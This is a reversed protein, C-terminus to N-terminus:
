QIWKFNTVAGDEILRATYLGHPLHSTDIWEFESTTMLQRVMKGSADFVSVRGTSNLQSIQIASRDASYMIKPQNNDVEEIGIIFEEVTVTVSNNSLEFCESSTVDEIFNGEEFLFVGSYDMGYVSYTGIELNSFDYSSSTTVLISDNENTIIYIYNLDSSSSNNFSLDTSNGNGIIITETTNGAPSTVTGAETNAFTLPFEINQGCVDSDFTLLYTGNFDEPATFSNPGSLPNFVDTYDLTYGEGGEPAEVTWSGSLEDFGCNAIQTFFPSGGSALLDGDNDTDFVIDNDSNYIQVRIDDDDIGPQWYYEILQGHFAELGDAIFIAEGQINFNYPGFGDM